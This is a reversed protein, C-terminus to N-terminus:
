QKNANKVTAASALDGSMSSRQIRWSPRSTGNSSIQSGTLTSSAGRTAFAGWTGPVAIETSVCLAPFMAM